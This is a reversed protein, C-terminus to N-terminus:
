NIHGVTVEADGSHGGGVGEFGEEQLVMWLIRLAGELADPGDDHSRGPFDLLQDVLMQTHRCNKHFKFFGRRLWNSLRAIRVEKKTNGNEIPTIPFVINQRESEAEIDEKALYQFGQTESGFAEFRVIKHWEIIHEVVTAVPNKQIDAEVYAHTGDFHLVIVATYDDRKAQKGKSWDVFGVTIHPVKDIVAVDEYWIEDRAESLWSPDFESLEPNFSDNQKESLFAPEDEAWQCMLDELSEKEPWLLVAGEDMDKRYTDYYEQAHVRSRILAGDVKEVPSNLYIERWENWLNMNTPWRVLAQYKITKFSPLRECKCVICEKHLVTGIVFIKTIGSEGSPIVAKTFWRWDKDRQGATEVSEDNQPDDIVIKTPRYQRYRRGRVSKGTGLAQVCIGSKTIIENNNWVVGKAIREGYTSVLKENTELEERITKLSQTAQETTDMILIIYKERLECIDRMIAIQSWTSKAYGRPCIVLTNDGGRLGDMIRCLPVHFLISPERFIFSPCYELAWDLLGMLEADVKQAQKNCMDRLMQGISHTM